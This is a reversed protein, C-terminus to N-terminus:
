ENPGGVPGSGGSLWGKLLNLFCATATAVSTRGSKTQSLRSFMRRPYAAHMGILSLARLSRRPVPHGVQQCPPRHALTLAESKRAGTLWRCACAGEGGGEEHPRINDRVIFLLSVGSSRRSGGYQTGGCFSPRVESSRTCPIQARPADARSLISSARALRSGSRIMDPGNSIRPRRDATRSLDDLLAFFHPRPFFFPVRSL